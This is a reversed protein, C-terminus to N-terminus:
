LTPKFDCAVKFNFSFNSRMGNQIILEFEEKSKKMDNNLENLKCLKRELKEEISDGERWSSPICYEPESYKYLSSGKLNSCSVRVYYATDTNLNNIQYDKNIIATIIEEGDLTEFSEERSWEVLFLFIM